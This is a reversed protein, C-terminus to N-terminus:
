AGSLCVNGNAYLSLPMFFIALAKASPTSKEVYKVVLIKLFTSKVFGTQTKTIYIYLAVRIFVSLLLLIFTPTLSLTLTLTTVLVLFGLVLRGLGLPCSWAALISVGLGLAWSWSGLVLLGLGLSCFRSALLLLRLGFALVSPGLDFPWSLLGLGLSWPM